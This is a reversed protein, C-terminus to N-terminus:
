VQLGCWGPLFEEGVPLPPKHQCAKLTEKREAGAQLLILYKEEHQLTSSASSFSIRKLRSSTLAPMAATCCISASPM